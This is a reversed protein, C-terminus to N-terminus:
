QLKLGEIGDRIIARAEELATIAFLEEMVADLVELSTM